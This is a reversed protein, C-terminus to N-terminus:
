PIMAMRCESTPAFETGPRDRRSLSIINLRRQPRPRWERYARWGIETAGLGGLASSLLWASAPLPVSSIGSPGYQHGSRNPKHLWEVFAAAGTCRKRDRGYDHLKHPMASNVYQRRSGRPM